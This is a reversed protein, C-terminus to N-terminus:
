WLLFADLFAFLKLFSALGNWFYAGYVADLWLRTAVEDAFLFGAPTLRVTAEDVVLWGADLCSRAAARGDLPDRGYRARHAVRDVGDTTRLGLWM